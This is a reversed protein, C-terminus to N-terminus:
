REIVQRRSRAFIEQADREHGAASPQEIRKRRRRRWERVELDKMAERERVGFEMKQGGHGGPSLSRELKKQKARVDKLLGEKDM